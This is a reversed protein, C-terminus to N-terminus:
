GNKITKIFENIKEGNEKSINIKIKKVNSFENIVNEYLDIYNRNMVVDSEINKINKLMWNSSNKNKEFIEMVEEEVLVLIVEEVFGNLKSLSELSLAPILYHFHTDLIVNNYELHDQISKIISPEIIRNYEKLTLNEFNNLQFQEILNQIFTGTHITKAKIEEIFKNTIYFRNVGLASGIIILRNKKKSELEKKNM